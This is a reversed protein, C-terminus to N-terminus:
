VVLIPFSLDPIDDFVYIEHDDYATFSGTLGLPDSRLQANRSLFALGIEQQTAAALAGTCRGLIRPAIVLHVLPRPGIDAPQNRLQRLQRPACGRM